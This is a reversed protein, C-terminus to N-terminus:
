RGLVALVNSYDDTWLPGDGAVPQWREDIADITAGSRAVAVWISPAAGTDYADVDPAYDIMRATVGLASAIREVVPALEFHRNSVHLLLLGDPELHDLYTAMAERTLLHVPIADSSFADVVVVDHLADSQELEIRGDGVVVDVTAPTDRLYTFYTPDSAIDVVVQDIEYFTFRDGAMGYAAIEGAGLGILAADMPQRPADFVPGLPGDPHYYTTPRGARDPHQSGHITTGMQLVRGGGDTELVAYTGFFSRDEAVIDAGTVGVGVAMVAAMTFAFVVPPRRLVLLGATAMVLTALQVQADHHLWAGAVVILGTIVLVPLRHRSGVVAPVLLLAGLIALPYEWLRTFVVPAVLAVFSGGLVGGLSVWAYFETLRSAPPRDAALRGHALLAAAFLWGLHLGLAIGIPVRGMFTLALPIAGIVVARGAIATVGEPDKVGFAVIFTALYLVLPLIWLLPFSAIDTSIFRTAGLLLASPVFSWAVWRARRAWAIPACSTDLQATVAGRRAPVLLAAVATCVLFAVYGGTFLRTQADLGLHREIVFPYAVLATLSGVNGAAYLFYPNDAHPHDTAAFWRQLSPSSTALALFPVGVMIALVGLTAIIPDSGADLSWDGPVTLPLFALPLVLLVLHAYRHRAVGLVSTGLHALLYGALLTAQFFVMATNWLSATGGARPLLLRGIIPQVLFLLTSGLLSALTFVALTARDRALTRGAAAITTEGVPATAVGAAATSTSTVAL